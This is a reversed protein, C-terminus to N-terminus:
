KVTGQIDCGPQTSSRRLTRIPPLVGVPHWVAERSRTESTCRPGAGWGQRAGRIGRDRRSDTRLGLPKASRVHRPLSGSSGVTTTLRSRQPTRFSSAPMGSVRPVASPCSPTRSSAGMACSCLRTIGDNSSLIDDADFHDYGLLENGHSGLLYAPIWVARDWAIDWVGTLDLTEGDPTAEAARTLQDSLPFGALRPSWVTWNLAAITAIAVFAIIALALAHAWLLRLM